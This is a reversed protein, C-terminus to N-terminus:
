AAGTEAVPKLPKLLNIAAAEDDLTTVAYSNLTTKVDRYRALRRVQDIDAGARILATVFSRRLGHFTIDAGLGARKADREVWRVQHHHKAWKGPWLPNRVPRGALWTKLFGLLEPHLPIVAHRRGKADRVEITVTPTDATLDFHAPTLSALESARLGTFAAVRYLAARARGNVLCKYRRPAAEAAAILRVLEADTLIRRSRRRDV